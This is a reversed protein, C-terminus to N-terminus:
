VSLELAGSLIVGRRLLVDLAHRLDLVLAMSADCYLRVDDGESSDSLDCRDTRVWPGGLRVTRFRAAGRGGGPWQVPPGVALRFADALAGEAASSWMIWAAIVDGCQLANELARLHLMAM